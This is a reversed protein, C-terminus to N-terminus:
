QPSHINKKNKTETKAKYWCLFTTTSSQLAAPATLSQRSLITGFFTSHCKYWINNFKAFHKPSLSSFDEATISHTVWGTWGTGLSSWAPFRWPWWVDMQTPPHDMYLRHNESSMLRIPPLLLSSWYRVLLGTSLAVAYPISTLVSFLLIMVLQMFLMLASMPVFPWFYFPTVLKFHRPALRHLSPVQEASIPMLTALHWWACHEKNIQIPALHLWACHEKNIQIPALDLWACYKKNMQIPELHRCACHVKNLQYGPMPCHLHHPLLLEEQSSWKLGM